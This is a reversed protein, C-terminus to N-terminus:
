ASYSVIKQMSPRKARAIHFGSRSSNVQKIRPGHGSGMHLHAAAPGSIGVPTAALMDAWEGALPMTGLYLGQPPPGLQREGM